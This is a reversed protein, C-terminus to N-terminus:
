EAKGKKSKAPKKSKAAPKSVPKAAPKVAPKAAAPKEVPKKEAKEGPKLGKLVAFPNNKVEMGVEALQAALSVGPARPYPDLELSLYQAVVEGMDLMGHTIMEPATDDDDILIDADIGIQEKEEAFFTDFQGKVHSHVDQLSVVCTQVVDAQFTGELRVAPGGTLRHLNLQAKFGSLERLDFRKALAACEAESAEIKEKRVKDPTIGEIAILRSFEPQAAM